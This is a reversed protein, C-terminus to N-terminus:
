KQHVEDQKYPLKAFLIESIEYSSVNQKKKVLKKEVQSRVLSNVEENFFIALLNHEVDVHKKLTPIGNTKYYSILRKRLKKRPNYLVHTKYCLHCRMVQLIKGDVLKNGNVM